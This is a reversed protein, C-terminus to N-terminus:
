YKRVPAVVLHEYALFCKLLSSTTLPTHWVKSFTKILTFNAGQWWCRQEQLVVHMVSPEGAAEGARGWPLARVGRERARIVGACWCGNSRITPTDGYGEPASCTSSIVLGVNGRRAGAEGEGGRSEGRHPPFVSPLHSDPVCQLWLRDMSGIHHMVLKVSFFLNKCVFWTSWMRDARTETRGPVWDWNRIGPKM